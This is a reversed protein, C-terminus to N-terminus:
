FYTPKWEPGFERIEFDSPPKREPGFERIEDMPTEMLPPNGNPEGQYKARYKKNLIWDYLLTTAAGGGM